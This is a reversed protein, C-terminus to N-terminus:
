QTGGELMMSRSRTLVARVPRGGRIHIELNVTGFSLCEADTLVMNVLESFSNISDNLTNTSPTAPRTPNQPEKKQLITDSM